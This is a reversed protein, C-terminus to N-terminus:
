VPRRGTRLQGREDFLEPRLEKLVRERIKRFTPRHIGQGFYTAAARLEVHESIKGGSQVYERYWQEINAPSRTPSAPRVMAANNKIKAVRVTYMLEGSELRLIGGGKWWSEIGVVAGPPAPRYDSLVSRPRGWCPLQGSYLKHVFETEIVGLMALRRRGDEMEIVPPPRPPDAAPTPPPPKPDTWHWWEIPEHELGVAAADLLERHLAAMYRPDATHRVAEQLSWSTAVLNEPDFKVM